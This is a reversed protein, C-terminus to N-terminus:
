SKMMLHSASPVGQVTVTPILYPAHLAALVASTRTPSDQCIARGISKTIILIDNNRELLEATKMEKQSSPDYVTCRLALM